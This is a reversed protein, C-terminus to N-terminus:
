GLQVLVAPDAVVFQRMPDVHRDAGLHRRRRFDSNLGPMMLATRATM